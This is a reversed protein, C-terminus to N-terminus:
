LGGIRACIDTPLTRFGLFGDVALAKPLPRASELVWAWCEVDGPDWMARDVDEPTFRRVDVLSAVGIAGAATPRPTVLDRAPPDLRRGAVVVFEGRFHTRWSRVEITKRGSVILHAWPQRVTLGKVPSSPSM